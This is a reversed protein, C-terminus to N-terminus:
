IQIFTVKFMLTILSIELTEENLHANPVHQTQFKTFLILM